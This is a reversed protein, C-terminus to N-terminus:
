GSIDWTNLNYLVHLFHDHPHVRQTGIDLGDRVYYNHRIYGVCLYPNDGLVSGGTRGDWLAKHWHEDASKQDTATLAQELHEEVTPNDYCAINAWGSDHSLASSLMTRVHYPNLRGGGLVVASSRNRERMWTFDGGENQVEIGLEAMQAKFAEAIAQRGSDNTPYLLPFSARQGNKVRIGDPGTVWGADDLLKRAAEVDGDRLQKTDEKIGWDFADFIDFAVEGYGYLCDDIMQQRNVGTAMAKRIVPDSTVANGVQQGEVEFAGPEQCPLSIVRYGFTPLSKLSFGNVQQGSLNPYVEAVDVQGSRAAALAADAEMLLLTAKAFVPKTGYYGDNREMILQQGQVYDVLKWPGSGVPKSAFVAEDYGAEPVIGLTAATHLLTSWPKTLILQVTNPDVVVAKDFGPMSVSAADKAKNYTFAVDGATLPSGDSFTVDSRIAFTWILGDDSISYETALDNVIQNNDDAAMLTSNFLLVGTEGFGKIPDFPAKVTSPDMAVIVEKRGALREPLAGTSAASSGAGSCGTLGLGGMAALAAGGGLLARRSLQRSPLQRNRQSTSSM